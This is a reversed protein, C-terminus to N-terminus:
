DVFAALLNRSGADLRGPERICLLDGAVDRMLVGGDPLVRPWDDRKTQFRRRGQRTSVEWSRIEIEERVSVIAEIELVFGAEVLSQELARRSPEDLDAPEAILCFESREGDRLSIFRGPASWPFCRAVSVARSKGDRTAWLRGDARRELL